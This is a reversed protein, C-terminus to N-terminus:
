KIAARPLEIYFTSGEGPKSKVSIKGNNQEMMDKCLVLGIHHGKEGSTGTTVVHELTFLQELDKAAIGIGTDQIAIKIMGNDIEAFISISDEPRCFKVANSLLNRIVVNIMNKDALVKLDEPLMQQIRISKQSIANEMIGLNENVLKAVEFVEPNIVIGDLQSKSWELLNDLFEATFFITDGLKKLLDSFEDKNIDGSKYLGFLMKLTALPSRLDHSVISFFKNKTINLKELEANQESAIKMQITLEDNIAAIEEKQKQLLANTTKKELNRKYYMVLLVVVFFLVISTIFIWKVYSTNQITIIQNNKVLGENESSVRSFETLVVHKLKEDSQISDTLELFDNQYKFAEKYNNQAEEIKIYLWIAKSRMSQSEMIQSNKYARKAYEKAKKYEKLGLYARAFSILVASEHFTNKLEIDHKLAIELNPLAKAYAGNKIDIRALGWTALAIGNIDGIRERIELSQTYYDKSKQMRDLEFSVNGLSYLSAAIGPEFGIKKYSEYAQIFYTEAANYEGLDHYIGGINIYCQNIGKLYNSKKYLRLADKYKDIAEQENDIKEYVYGMSALARAMGRDYKVKKAVDFGKSFYFLASDMRSKIAYTGGMDIYAEVVLTDIKLRQALDKYRVAYYFKKDQDVSGYARSLEMLIRLHTTDKIGPKLEKLLKDVKTTQAICPIQCALLFVFYFIYKRKLCFLVEM